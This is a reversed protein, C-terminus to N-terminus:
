FYWWYFENYLNLDWGETKYVISLAPIVRTIYDSVRNDRTLFINDDFGERVAIGARVPSETGESAMCISAMASVIICLLGITLARKNILLLLVEMVRIPKRRPREDEIIIMIRILHQPFSSPCIM